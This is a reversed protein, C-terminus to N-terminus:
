IVRIDGMSFVWGIDNVSGSIADDETEYEEIRYDDWHDDNNIACVMKAKEETLYVGYIGYDSYEGCVVVYIKM